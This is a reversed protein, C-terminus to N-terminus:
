ITKGSQAIRVSSTKPPRPQPVKPILRPRPTLIKPLAPKKPWSVPIRHYDAPFRQSRRTVYAALNSGFVAFAYTSDAISQLKRLSLNFMNDTLPFDNPAKFFVVEREGTDTRQLPIAQSHLLINRNQACISYGSIFHSLAEKYKLSSTAEEFCKRFLEVRAQNDLKAFLHASAKPPLRTYIRFLVKFRSELYNFTASVAGLAHIYEPPGLEYTPWKPSNSPVDSSM